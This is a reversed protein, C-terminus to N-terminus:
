KSQIIKDFVELSDAFFVNKNDILYDFRKKGLEDIIITKFGNDFAEEIVSSWPSVVILNKVINTELWNTTDDFSFKVNRNVLEKEFVEKKDKERPHLRVTISVNMLKDSNLYSLFLPHFGKMEVTSAYLIHNGESQITKSKTYPILHYETNQFNVNLHSKLYNITETNRVYFTDAIKISSPKSYAPYNIMGGHQVEILKIKNRFKSFVISLGNQDYHCLLYVNKKTYFFLLITNVIQYSKLLSIKKPKNIFRSILYVVGGINYTTKGDINKIIKEKGQNIYIPNGIAINNLLRDKYQNNEFACLNVQTYILSYSNKNFQIRILKLILLFLDLISYLYFNLSSRKSSKKASTNSIVNSNEFEAIRSSVDLYYANIEKFHM